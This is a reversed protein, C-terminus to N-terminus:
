YTGFIKINKNPHIVVSCLGNSFNIANNPYLSNLLVFKVALSLRLMTLVM